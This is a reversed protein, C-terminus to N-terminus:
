QLFPLSIDNVFIMCGPYFKLLQLKEQLYNNVRVRLVDKNWNM